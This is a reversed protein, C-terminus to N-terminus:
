VPQKVLNYKKLLKACQSIDNFMMVDIISLNPEFQNGFQQYHIPQPELFSLQLGRKSFHLSKYLHKGGPMNIYHTGGLEECIALVRDEGRLEPDKKIDSSVIWIKREIGLYSCLYRLQYDLFVALNDTKQSLIEVLVPYVAEFQPAKRYNHRITQLIKQQSSIEIQNILKNPSAGILPLTIRHKDSNGIIYNRNIWGGKIFNVDDYVVFINTAQILQFYGLYPFLYPQMIAINM